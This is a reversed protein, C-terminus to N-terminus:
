KGKIYQNLEETSSEFSFADSLKYYNKKDTCRSYSYKAFELRSEEFAFIGIIGKIQEASMCNNDAIQKALTLKTDEFSKSEISSKADSFEASSMPMSCASETITTNDSASGSTTTTTSSTTTMSTTVPANVNINVNANGTNTGSNVHTNQSVGTSTTTYSTTTMTSTTTTTTAGGGTGDNVNMNVNMGTANVDLTISAGANGNGTTTTTSTVTTNASTNNNVNTNTAPSIAANTSVTNTTAVSGGSVPAQSVFKWKYEGKKNKGVSFTFETNSVPEGGWMMPVSKDCDPIGSQDFIIKAKVQQGNIGTAKVNTEATANQKVGNIILYFREGGETFVTLSNNTQALVSYLSFCTLAAALAIKKM